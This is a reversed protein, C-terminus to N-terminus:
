GLVKLGFEVDYDNTSTMGASFRSHRCSTESSPDPEYGAREFRDALHRAIGCDTANGLSGNNAFDIREPSDHTPSGIEGHNLEAHEVAALAGSNPSRARLTIAPEVPARNASKQLLVYVQLGHLTRNGAEHEVWTVPIHEADFGQLSSPEAGSAYYDRGTSEQTASDMDAGLCVQRAASRPFSRCDVESFLEFLGPQRNGSELSSSRWAYVSPGYIKRREFCLFALDLLKVIGPRV